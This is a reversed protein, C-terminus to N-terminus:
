AVGHKTKLEEIKKLDAAREADKKKQAAISNQRNIENVHDRIGQLYQERADDNFVANTPITYSYHEDSCCSCRSYHVGSFYVWDRDFSKFDMYEFGDIARIDNEANFLNTALEEMDAQVDLMHDLLSDPKYLCVKLTYKTINASIIEYGPLDITLQTVKEDNGYMVVPKEGDNGCGEVSVDRRALDFFLVKIDGLLENIANVGASSDTLTYKIESKRLNM